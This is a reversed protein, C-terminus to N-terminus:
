RCPELGLRFIQTSKECKKNEIVYKEM